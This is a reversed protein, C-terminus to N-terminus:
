KKNKERGLAERLAQRVDPDKPELAAARRLHTIAEARKGQRLEIRGLALYAEAYDALQIVREYAQAAKEDHGLRELCMAELLHYAPEFNKKEIAVKVKELAREYEQRLFLVQSQRYYALDNKPDLRLIEALKEDASDVRDEELFR